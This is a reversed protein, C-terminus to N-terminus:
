GRRRHLSPCGPRSHDRNPRRVVARPRARGPRSLRRVAGRRGPAATRRAAPRHLGLRLRRAGSAAEEAARAPGSGDAPRHRPLRHPGADLPGPAGRAGRRALELAISHLLQAFRDAGPVDFVEFCPNQGNSLTQCSPSNQVAAPLRVLQTDFYENFVIDGNALQTLAWPGPGISPVGGVTAALPFTTVTGTAPDLRGVHALPPSGSPWFNTYWILGTADVLVHAPAFVTTPLSYQTFYCGTTQGPACVYSQLSPAGSGTDWAGLQNDWPTTAPDFNTLKAPGSVGSVSGFWVRGRPADYALGIVENDNGPVNYYRFAGTQPTFRVIRSHNPHTGPYLLSGGQSFWINGAPDVVADEGLSSIPTSYDSGNFYGFPSGPQPAGLSSAVGASTFVQFDMAFEMNVFVKGSPAHYALALPAGQSTDALPYTDFRYVDLTADPSTGGPTIVRIIGSNIHDRPRKVVILDDRWVLIQADTAVVTTWVSGTRMRISSAASATGFGAGEIRIGTVDYSPSGLATAHGHILPTVALAPTGNTLLACGCLIPLVAYRKLWSGARRTRSM